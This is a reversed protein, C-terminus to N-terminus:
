KSNRRKMSEPDHMTSTVNIIRADGNEGEAAKKLDDLLLNTLLYPGVHLCTSTLLYATTM